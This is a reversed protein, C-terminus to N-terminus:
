IKALCDNLVNLMKERMSNNWRNKSKRHQFRSIQHTFLTVVKYMLRLDYISRIM